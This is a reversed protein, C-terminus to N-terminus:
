GILVGLLTNAYVELLRIINGSLKNQGQLNAKTLKQQKCGCFRVCCAWLILRDGQGQAWAITVQAKEQRGVAAEAATM